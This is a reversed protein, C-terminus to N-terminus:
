YDCTLAPYYGKANKQITFSFFGSKAIPDSVAIYYRETCQSSPSPTLMKKEHKGASKVQQLFLDEGLLNRELNCATVGCNWNERCGQSHIGTERETGWEERM